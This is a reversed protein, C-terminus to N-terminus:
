FAAYPKFRLGTVWVKIPTFYNVNVFHKSYNPIYYARHLHKNINLPPLPFGYTTVEKDPLDRVTQEKESFAEVTEPHESSIAM